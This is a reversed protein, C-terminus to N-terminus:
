GRHDPIINENQAWASNNQHDLQTTKEEFTQEICLTNLKIGSIRRNNITTNIWFITFRKQWKCVLRGKFNKEHLKGTNYEHHQHGFGM